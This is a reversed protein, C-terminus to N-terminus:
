VYEKYRINKNSDSRKMYIITDGEIIADKPVGAFKIKSGISYFKPAMIEVNNGKEEVKLQGL